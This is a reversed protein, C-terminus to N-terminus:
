GPQASPVHPDPWEGGGAENGPGVNQQQPIVTGEETEVPEGTYERIDTGDADLLPGRERLSRTDGDAVVVFHQRDEGLPREETKAPDTTGFTEAAASRTLHDPKDDPAADDEVTFEEATGVAYGRSGCAGCELAVVVLDARATATDRVATAGDVQSRALALVTHCTACSVGGDRLTFAADYGEVALARLAEELELDGRAMEPDAAEALPRGCTRCVVATRDNQSGCDPCGVTAVPTLGMDTM